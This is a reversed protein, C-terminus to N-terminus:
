DLVETAQQVGSRGLSIHPNQACSPLRLSDLYMLAAEVGGIPGCGGRDVGEELPDVRGLKFRGCWRFLGSGFMLDYGSNVGQNSHPKEYTNTFLFAMQGTPHLNPALIRLNRNRTKREKRQWFFPMCAM